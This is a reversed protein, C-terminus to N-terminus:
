CQKVSTPCPYAIVDIIKKQDAISTGLDNPVGAKTGEDSYTLM